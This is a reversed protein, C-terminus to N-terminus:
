RSRLRAKGRRSSDVLEKIKEVFVIPTAILGM